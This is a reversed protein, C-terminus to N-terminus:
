HSIAALIAARPGDTSSDVQALGGIRLFSAVTHSRVERRHERRFRFGQVLGARLRQGLPGSGPVPRCPLVDVGEEVGVAEQLVPLECPRGELLPFPGRVPEYGPDAHDVALPHRDGGVVVRHVGPRLGDDVVGLRVPKEVHNM